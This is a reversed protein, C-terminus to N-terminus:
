QSLERQMTARFEVIEHMQELANRWPSNEGCNAVLQAVLPQAIAVDCHRGWEDLSNRAHAWQRTDARVSATLGDLAIRTTTPSWKDELQALLGFAIDFRKTGLTRLQQELLLARQSPDLHQILAAVAQAIVQVENGSEIWAGCLAESWARDPHRACAASFASLLDAAYETALAAALFAAADCGDRECWHRPPVMAIMQTLWFAREGIKRQAPPKAEIGDRQAAKDLSEPLRVELKRKRLKALLSSSQEFHLLPDVRELNRKAHASTPLRALADAAAMRVAKRKDDLARELFPEDVAELGILMASLFAERAEPPDADWTKELWTRTQATSVARLAQLEATREELTGNLWREESPERVVPRLSWEANRTVLWEAVPGLVRAFEDRLAPPMAELAVPVWHAPLHKGARQALMLWERMLEKYDGNLMRGFRWAAAETVDAGAGPEPFAPGDSIAQAMARQGAIRWLWTAAAARLLTRENAESANALTPDPWLTEAPLGTRQTGLTAISSLREWASLPARASM